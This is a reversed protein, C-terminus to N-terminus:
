RYLFEINGQPSRTKLLSELEEQIYSKLEKLFEPNYLTDSNLRIILKNNEVGLVTAPLDEEKTFNVLNPDKKEQIFIFRNLIYVISSIHTTLFYVYQQDKTFIVQSAVELDSSGVSHPKSSEPVDITVLLESWSPM